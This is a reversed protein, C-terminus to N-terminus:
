MKPIKAHEIVGSWRKIESDLLAALQQPTSSKADVGLDALKKKVDPNAV